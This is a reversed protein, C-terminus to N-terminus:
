AGTYHKFLPPFNPDDNTMYRDYFKLKIDLPPPIYNNDIILFQTSNLVSSALDYLYNYFNRFIDQNVEKDINKMPTDIIIFSPIPLNNRSAVTHLALMFCSNFLTKKGGSGANYFNWSLYAEGKPYIMVDWTKRNIYVKDESTVGPVGVETLIKLFTEELDDILTEGKVINQKESLIQEKLFQERKYIEAADAELKSIEIPMMKLQNLGRMREELTAVNQDIERINSLFISEYQKLENQLKEDLEKRKTLKILLDKKTKSLAKKHFDISSELERLRDNLDSQIVESQDNLNPKEHGIDSGCLNCNEVQTIRNKISTGCSPCNDFDVGLFITAIVSNKALKFKSAVLESRLSEQQNIRAELDIIAQEKISIEEILKRINDRIQDSSHTDKSYGSELRKKEEKATNLEYRTREEQRDIETETSFGFKRLFGRLGTATSIKSFRMKKFRQLKEELEILKQTSYQLIYKLVERSNRAKTPEEQRFFSNDLKSQDLYCYWMFNKISLRVLGSDEKKRSAPIKLVNIELLYFILDSLNYVKNDWLAQTGGSVPITITFSNNEIDISTATVYSDNILVRELLVNYQGIELELSVSVIEQKIAATRELSGGLCFGILRAISSKGSGVKGHFFLVQYDLDLVEKRGKCQISLTKFHIKMM